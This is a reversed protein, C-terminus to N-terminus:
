ITKKWALVWRFITKKSRKYDRKPPRNLFYSEGEIDEFISKSGENKYDSILENLIETGKMYKFEKRKDKSVDNMRKVFWAPAKDKKTEPIIAPREEQCQLNTDLEPNWASPSDSKGNVFDSIAEIEDELVKGERKKTKRETITNASLAKLEALDEEIKGLRIVEDFAQDFKEKEEETPQADSFKEMAAMISKPENPKKMEEGM